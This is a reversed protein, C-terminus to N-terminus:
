RDGSSGGDVEEVDEAKLSILRELAERDKEPLSADRDRLLQAFFRQEEKLEADGGDAYRDAIQSWTLSGGIYLLDQKLFRGMKELYIAAVWEAPWDAEMVRRVETLEPERERYGLKPPPNWQPPFDSASRESMFDFALAVDGSLLMSEARRRNAQEPQTFVMAPVFALVSVAALILLPGPGSAERRPVRWDPKLWGIAILSGIIWIPATLVSLIMLNFTAGAILADRDTHRIGGMVDIVPTPVMTVVAFVVADAFLMVFFFAPTARVGYIVSIVRTILAVRWAAVLALTWLNVGIADVPSMFREYPIAYLWAMPATMWFLGLFVVYSKEFVPPKRDAKASRLMIACHILLFLTTGSALSAGLPRLAHWPEHILDEGDYERALGASMVFIAGILITWRSAALELIADRDGLLFRPLLSIKM